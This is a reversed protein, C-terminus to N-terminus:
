VFSFEVEEWRPREKASYISGVHTVILSHLMPKIQAFIDREADLRHENLRNFHM